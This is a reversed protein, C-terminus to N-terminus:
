AELDKKEELYESVKIYVEEDDDPLILWGACYNDSFDTWAKQIDIDDAFYGRANLIESIRRVDDPRYISEDEDPRYRLRILM